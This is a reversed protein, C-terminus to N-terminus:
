KNTSWLLVKGDDGASAIQPEATGDKTWVVGNIEYVGHADNQEEDIKWEWSGTSTETHTYVVIKGDSGGSVIRGDSSWDVSYIPGEHVAPLTSELIWDEHIPDARFTSPIDSRQGSLSRRKWVIVQSDDSCSVLRTSEDTSKPDFVCCWVTSTHGELVAVSSWDDDDERWLRLTDDYSASAILYESPHWAVHKVDQTHDQLVSVCEFEENDEDAEWVWVTKDRSCSALFRGDYSWQVCKVESEHGEIVALLPWEAEEDEDEDEDNMDELGWISVTADFSCAAITPLRTQPKWAVSRVTKTHGESLTAVVAGSFTNHIIITKDSSCSALLPKGPLSALGWATEKHSTLTQKLKM